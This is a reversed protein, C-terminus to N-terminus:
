SEVTCTAATLYVLMHDCAELHGFQDTTTLRQPGLRRKGTVVEQLTGRRKEEQSEGVLARLEDVLRAGGPNHSSCYLHFRRGEFPPLLRIKMRGIEDQVFVQGALQSPLTREAILRM